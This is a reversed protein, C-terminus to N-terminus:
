NIWGTLISNNRIGAKINEVAKKISDPILIEFDHYPALDVGNNNLDSKLTQGGHFNGNCIATLESLVVVDLRKMCSTLLYPGVAPISQYQDTDVGIGTKQLEKVKFLAGNGTNGACAFIVEAGRHILSDALGAGMLTDAFSAANVGYLSVSKGYKTNFYDIGKAFSVTFQDIEPIKPGAVCGVAPAQPNRFWSWYAALFGCPFSAQDVKYVSCVMNPPLLPFSYDLLMFKVSPNAKAADLTPQAANFGMSIIIDFQNRAFYRINSDMEAASANERAVWTIPLAAYAEKLGNLAQQNFGGDHLNGFGSVLGVKLPVVEKKCSLSTGAIMLILCISFIKDTKM